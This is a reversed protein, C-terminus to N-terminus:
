EPPKAAGGKRRFTHRPFEGKDWAKIRNCNACLVQYRTKAYEVNRRVWDRLWWVQQRTTKDAGGDSHIHDIQLARWDADYGCHACRLGGLMALIEKRVAHRHQRQSERYADRKSAKYKRQSRQAIARWKEPNKARWERMYAAHQKPDKAM